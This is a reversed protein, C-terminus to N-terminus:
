NTFNRKRRMESASARAAPAHVVASRVGALVRSGGGDVAGDVVSPGSPVVWGGCCGGEVGGGALVVLIGLVGGM